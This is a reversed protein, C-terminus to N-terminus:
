AGRPESLLVRYYDESLNEILPDLAAFYRNMERQLGPLVPAAPHAELGAIVPALRRRLSSLFDGGFRHDLQVIRALLQEMLARAEGPHLLHVKVAQELDCLPDHILLVFAVPWLDRDGTDILRQMSNAAVNLNHLMGHVLQGVVNWAKAEEKVWYHWNWWTRLASQLNDRRQHHARVLPSYCCRKGAKALLKCLETDEGNTRHIEDYGGVALAAAREVCLTSGYLFWPPCQRVPGHHQAMVCARWKDPATEQFDEILMGGIAATAPDRTEVEMLVRRVYEQEPRADTDVSLVWVGSAEALATNRAAALGLNEAHHLLTVPFERAIEASGDTSGDDVVFFEALPFDQQFAHELTDRIYREVNYVPLYFTVPALKPAVGLHIIGTFPKDHLAAIDEQQPALALSKEIAKRTGADGAHSLYRALLNITSVEGPLAALSAEAVVWADELHARRLCRKLLAHFLAPDGLGELLRLGRAASLDEDLLIAALVQDARAQPNLGARLAAVADLRGQAALFWLLPSYDGTERAHAQLRTEQYEAPPVAARTHQVAHSEPHPKFPSAYRLRKDIRMVEELLEAAQREQNLPICKEVLSLRFQMNLPFACVTNSLLAHAEAPRGAEWLLDALAAAHHANRPDLDFAKRQHALADEICTAKRRLGALRAHAEAPRGAEWLLDALAAAHHANRPDLDFAKRQHALADEICTAKRRLGALRAHAEAHLVALTAQGEACLRLWRVWFADGWSGQLYASPESSETLLAVQLFIEEMQDNGIAKATTAGNLAYIASKENLGAARRHLNVCLQVAAPVPMISRFYYLSHAYASLARPEEPYTNALDEGLRQELPGYEHRQSVMVMLHDQLAREKAELHRFPRGSRPQALVYDILADWRAVGSFGRVKERGAAIIREAEDWHALYYLVKERFNDRNYLVIDVGDAFFDTVEENYDEFFPLAGCALTEFVRLNLEGRVSHNFVIRARSLLTAYADGWIDTTLLVNLNDPLNAVQQLFHQRPGHHNKNLNGLYLVDIDKPVPMPRHLLPNHAYLPGWYSPKCFANNLLRTGPRDTLVVDYRGFNVVQAPYFINWDGALCVTPVPSDEIGLPPPDNEPTWVLILDPVFEPAIRRLVDELTDVEPRFRYDALPQASLTRVQHAGRYQKLTDYACFFPLGHSLINM